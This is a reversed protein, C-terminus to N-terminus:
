EADDVEGEGYWRKPEIGNAEMERMQDDNRGPNIWPKNRTESVAAACDLCLVVSLETMHRRTAPSLMVDRSCEACPSPTSGEIPQRKPDDTRSGIVTVRGASVAADIENQLM